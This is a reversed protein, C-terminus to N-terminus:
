PCQNLLFNRHQDYAPSGANGPPMTLMLSQRLINCYSPSNVPIGHCTDCSQQGNNTAPLNTNAPNSWNAQGIPSYRTPPTLSTQYPAPLQLTTGPHILFVNDGRHCMTCNEALNSGNKINNVTLRVNAGTIKNGAADINDWFCAKGTQASQCIIGLLNVNNANERPLAICAGPVNPDNYAYVEASGGLFSLNLDGQRVWQNSPWNPPIPVGSAKCSKIYANEIPPIYRWWHDPLRYPEILKRFLDSYDIKDYHVLGNVRERVLHYRWEYKQKLKDSTVALVAQNVVAKLLLREKDELEKFTYLEILDGEYKKLAEPDTNKVLIEFMSDLIQEATDENIKIPELNADYVLGHYPTEIWDAPPLKKRLDPDAKEKLYGRWKEMMEKQQSLSIEPYKEEHNDAHISLSFLLSFVSLWISKM